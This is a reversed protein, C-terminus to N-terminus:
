ISALVIFSGTYKNPIDAINAAHFACAWDVGWGRSDGVVGCVFVGRSAVGEAANGGGCCGAAADSVGGGAGAGVGAM